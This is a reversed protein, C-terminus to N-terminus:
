SNITYENWYRLGTYYDKTVVQVQGFNPLKLAGGRRLNPLRKDHERELISGQEWYGRQIMTPLAHVM